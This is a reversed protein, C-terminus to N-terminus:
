DPDDNTVGESVYIQFTQSSTVIGDKKYLIDAELAGLPWGSTETATASLTYSGITLDVPSVLLDASFTGLKASCKLTFGTLDGNDDVASLELTNGRTLHFMESM